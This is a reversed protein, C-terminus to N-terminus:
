ASGAVGIIVPFIGVADPKTLIGYVQQDTINEMKHFVDYFNFPNKSDFVIIEQNEKLASRTKELAASIDLTDYSPTLSISYGVILIVIIIVILYIKKM